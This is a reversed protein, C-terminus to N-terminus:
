APATSARATRPPSPRPLSLIPPPGMAKGSFILRCPQRRRGRRVMAHLYILEAMRRFGHAKYLQLTREDAPDVLVQALQINRQAFEASVTDILQGAAAGCTEDTGVAPALLLMTRGPSVVPLIAWLLRGNSEALWLDQVNIHRQAAFRLFENVHEPDALRGNAALILRLGEQIRAGQAPSCRITEDSANAFEPYNSVSAM